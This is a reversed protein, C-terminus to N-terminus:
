PRVRRVQQFESVLIYTGVRVQFMRCSPSKAFGALAPHKGLFLGLAEPKSRPSVREAEGLVTVAIGRDFDSAANRRNDVLMSVQPSRGMNAYKRTDKATAFYLHKLDASAAFAVLSQYPARRERTALVGLKQGALLRRIVSHADLPSRAKMKENDRFGM